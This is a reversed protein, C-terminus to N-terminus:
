NTQPKTALERTRINIKSHNTMVCEVSRLYKLHERNERDCQLDVGRLVKWDHVMSDSGEGGRKYSPFIKKVVRLVPCTIM